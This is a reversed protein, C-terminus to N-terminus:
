SYPIRSQSLSCILHTLKLGKKLMCNSLPYSKKEEFKLTWHRDAAARNKTILVVNGTKAYNGYFFMYFRKNIAKKGKSLLKPLFLDTWSINATKDEFTCGWVLIFNTVKMCDISQYSLMDARAKLKQM